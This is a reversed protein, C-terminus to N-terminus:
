NVIRGLEHHAHASRSGDDWRVEHRGTESSAVVTGVKHTRTHYVRSGVARPTLQESGPWNLEDLDDRIMHHSRGGEAYKDLDAKTHHITLHRELNDDYRLGSARGGSVVDHSWEGWPHLWVTHGPFDQHKYSRSGAIDKGVEKWGRTGLSVHHYDVARTSEYRAPSPPLAMGYNTPVSGPTYPPSMVKLECGPRHTPLVEHCVPCTQKEGPFGSLECISEEVAELKEMRGHRKVMARMFKELQERRGTRSMGDPGSHVFHKEGIWVSHDKSRYGHWEGQTGTHRMGLQRAWRHTDRMKNYPHEPNGADNWGGIFPHPEPEKPKRKVPAKPMHINTQVPQKHGPGTHRQVSHSPPKKGAECVSGLKTEILYEADVVGASFNMSEKRSSASACHDKCKGCFKCVQGWKETDCGPCTGRHTFAPVHTM